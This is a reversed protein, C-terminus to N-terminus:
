LQCLINDGADFWKTESSPVFLTQCVLVSFIAQHESIYDSSALFHTNLFTYYKLSPEEESGPCDNAWSILSTINHHIITIM